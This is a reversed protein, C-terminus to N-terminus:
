TGAPGRVTVEVRGGVQVHARACRADRDVVENVVLGGDIGAERALRHAMANADRVTRCDAELEEALRAAFTTAPTRHDPDVLGEVPILVVTQRHPDLYFYTCARRGDAEGREISVAWDTLGLRELERAAVPRAEATTHCDSMLGRAVDDLSAELEILRPDQAVGPDLPMWGDPVDSGAPVVEIRGRGNDYAALRPPANGTQDRWEEGCDVVPDGTAADIVTVAGEGVHCAVSTSSGSPTFAGTAWGATAIALTTLVATVLLTRRPMPTRTPSTPELTDTPMRTIEEFLAQKAHTDSLLRAQEDTVLPLRRVAEDIHKEHGTM